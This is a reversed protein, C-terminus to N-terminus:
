LLIAFQVRALPQQLGLSLPSPSPETNGWFASGWTPKLFDGVRWTQKELCSNADCFPSSTNRVPSGGHYGPLVVAGLLHSDSVKSSTPAKGEM